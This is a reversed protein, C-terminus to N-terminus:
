NQAKNKKKPIMKEKEIKKLPKLFYIEKVVKQLALNTEYNGKIKKYPHSVKNVLQYYYSYFKTVGFKTEFAFANLANINKEYIFHTDNRDTIKYKMPFFVNKNKHLHDIKAMWKLIKISKINYLNLKKYFKFGQQNSLITLEFNKIFIKGSFSLDKNYFYIKAKIKNKKNKVTKSNSIIPNRPLRPNKPTKPNILKSGNTALLGLPLTIFITLIIKKIM